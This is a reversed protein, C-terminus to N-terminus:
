IRLTLPSTSMTNSTPPCLKRALNSRGLVLRRERPDNLPRIDLVSDGNKRALVDPITVFGSTASCADPGDDPQSVERHGHCRQLLPELPMTQPYSVALGTTDPGFPGSRRSV